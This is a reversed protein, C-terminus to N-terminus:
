NEDVIHTLTKLQTRLKFKHLESSFFLSFRFAKLLPIKLKQFTEIHNKEQFRNRICNVIIEIAQYFFISTTNRLKLYLNQLLKEKRM